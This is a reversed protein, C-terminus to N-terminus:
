ELLDDLEHLAIDMHSNNDNRLCAGDPVADLPFQDDRPLPIRDRALLKARFNHPLLPPFARITLM